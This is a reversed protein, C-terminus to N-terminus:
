QFTRSPEETSLPHRSRGGGEVNGPRTMFESLRLIAPAAVIVVPLMVVWAVAWSQLWHQFFGGMRIRDFSAIAAAISTTLASQVAAFLFHLYSRPLRPM